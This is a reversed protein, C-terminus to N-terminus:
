TLNNVVGTELLVGLYEEEDRIVWKGDTVIKMIEFWKREEDSVRSSHDYRSRNTVYDLM